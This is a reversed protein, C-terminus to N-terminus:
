EGCAWDRGVLGAFRVLGAEADVHHLTAVSFVADFSGNEFPMSFVDGQLWEVLEGAHRARARELIGDDLDLGVVHRVGARALQGSLVGNGCGVDLVRRAGYPIAALLLPHYQINANWVREPRM